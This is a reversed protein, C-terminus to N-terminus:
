ASKKVQHAQDQNGPKVQAEIASRLAPALTAINSSPQQAPPSFALPLAVIVTTGEDLRSKVNIEGGHL